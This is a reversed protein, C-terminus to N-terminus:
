AFQRAHHRLVQLLDESFSLPILLDFGDARRLVTVSAHRWATSAVADSPFAQPRLDLPLARALLPVADQGEVRLVALGPGIEALAGDDPAVFPAAEGRPGDFLWLVTPAVRALALAPEEVVRGPAPVAIRLEACLAASAGAFRDPWFAIRRLRPGPQQAVALAPGFGGGGPEGCRGAQVM